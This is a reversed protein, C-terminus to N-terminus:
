SKRLKQEKERDRRYIWTATQGDDMRCFITDGCLTRIDPKTGNASRLRITILYHKVRRKKM